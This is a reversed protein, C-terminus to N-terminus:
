ALAGPPHDGCGDVGGAGGADATRDQHAAVGGIAGAGDDAGAYTM